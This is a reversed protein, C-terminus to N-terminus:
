LEKIEKKNQTPKNIKRSSTIMGDIGILIRLLSQIPIVFRYILKLFVLDKFVSDEWRHICGVEMLRFEVKCKELM